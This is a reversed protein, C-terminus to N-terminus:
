NKTPKAWIIDEKPTFCVEKTYSLGPPFRGIMFQEEEKCYHAERGGKTEKIIRHKCKACTAAWGGM